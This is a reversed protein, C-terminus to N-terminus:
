CNVEGQLQRHIKKCSATIIWLELASNLMYAYMYAYMHRLLDSPQLIGCHEKNGLLSHLQALATRVLNRAECMIISVLVCVCMALCEHM